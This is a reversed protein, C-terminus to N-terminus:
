ETEWRHSQQGARITSVQGTVQTSKYDTDENTKITTGDEHTRAKSWTAEHDPHDAWGATLQHKRTNEHKVLIEPTVNQNQVKSRTKQQQFFMM